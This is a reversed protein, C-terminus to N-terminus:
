FERQSLKKTIDMSEKLNNYEETIFDWPIMDTFKCTSMTLQIARKEHHLHIVMNEHKDSKYSFCIGRPELTKKVLENIKVLKAEEVFKRSLNTGAFSIIQMSYLDAEKASKGLITKLYNSIKNALENVRIRNKEADEGVTIQMRIPKRFVISSGFEKAELAITYARANHSINEVPLSEKDSEVLSKMKRFLERREQAKM